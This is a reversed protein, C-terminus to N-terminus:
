PAVYVFVPNSYFWLDQWPNEGVEDPAPEPEDTSTGRVRLYMPAEVSEVRYSMSLYEGDRDWDDAAFRRVVATSPNVGGAAEILAPDIDGAILDVRSVTPRDGNYNEVSPDRVRISVTLDSGSQVALSEGVAATAAGSAVTLDLASVLDGTTVFIRGARLSQLIDDYSKSAYVYTKAYEGPWFDPGGETWHLHSDSTATIWWKRGEGLMSDWAGGLEAALPDFGGFTSVYPPYNGRRGAPRPYHEPTLGAAQHGPAGEMGVAIDPATDNWNRLITAAPMARPNSRRSPHNAFVLPKEAFDQMLELAELMRAGDVAEPGLPGGVSAADFRSEVSYIQESEQASRAVIVSAHDPGGPPNLEVGYFQILDPVEERAILLDPYAQEINIKSHERGGHDTAVIWDLGFRRAMLANQPIPYIGHSRLVPVPPDVNRDWIVSYQSHIHHDGALWQRDPTAQPAEPEVCGALAVSFGAMVLTISAHRVHDLEAKSM